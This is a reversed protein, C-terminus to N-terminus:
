KRRPIKLVKENFIGLASQEMAHAAARKENARLVMNNIKRQIHADNLLPVPIYGVQGDDIEDVVAGYIFRAILPQAYEGSLWAHLYGSVDRSAPIIRIIHQSAAFIQWHKPVMAVKGVSGSCTILTMGEQLFLESEVLSVHHVRSLYKKNSPDLQCVQRGGIFPTGCGEDVYIRRFRRPLIIKASIRKDSVAAVEASSKELARTIEDVIPQHYSADLRREWKGIPVSFNQVPSQSDFMQARQKLSKMDPLRLANQLIMRANEFLANSEDLLKHSEEVLCHIKKRLSLPPNPVLVKELHAPDIHKVVGGYLLGNLLVRGAGSKLLIYLYGSNDATIRILDGSFIKGAKDKRVYACEGITGSCSLLIQGQKVRLSDVDMKMPEPYIWKTPRSVADNVQSPLFFPEAKEADKEAYVARFRSPREISTTLRPLPLVDWGCDSIIQRTHQVSVGHASADLRLCSAVIETLSVSAWDPPVPFSEKNSSQTVM